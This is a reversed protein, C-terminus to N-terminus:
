CTQYGGVDPSMPSELGAANVATVRYYHWTWSGATTDKYSTANTVTTLFTEAGYDGRYVRYSTM